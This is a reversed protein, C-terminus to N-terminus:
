PCLPAPERHRALRVYGQPPQFEGLLAHLEAAPIGPYETVSRIPIAFAHDLDRVYALVSAGNGPRAAEAIAAVREPTDVIAPGLDIV